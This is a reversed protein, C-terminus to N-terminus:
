MYDYVSDEFYLWHFYEIQPDSMEAIEKENFKRKDLLDKVKIERALQSM